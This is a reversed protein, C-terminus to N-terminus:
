NTKDYKERHKRMLYADLDNCDEQAAQWTIWMIELTEEDLYDLENLEVWNSFMIEQARKVEAIM